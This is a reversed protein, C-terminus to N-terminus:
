AKNGLMRLVSRLLLTIYLLTCAPIPRSYLSRSREARPGKLQDGVGSGLEDTASGPPAYCGYLVEEHRTGLM